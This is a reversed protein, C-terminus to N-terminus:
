KKFREENFHKIRSDMDRKLRDALNKRLIEQRRKFNNWTLRWHPRAPMGRTGYELMRALDRMPLPEGESGKSTPHNGEGVGVTYGGEIERTQISNLYEGTDILPSTTIAEKYKKNLITKTSLPVHKFDRSIIRDKLEQCFDDAIKKGEEKLVPIATKQFVDLIIVSLKAKPINIPM